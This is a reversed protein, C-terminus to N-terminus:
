TWVESLYIAVDVTTGVIQVARARVYIDKGLPQIQFMCDGDVIADESGTVDGVSKKCAVWTVGNDASCEIVVRAISGWSTASAIVVLTHGFQFFTEGTTGTIIVGSLLLNKAM